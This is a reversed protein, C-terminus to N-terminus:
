LNERSQLESTHEESRYTGGFTVFRGGGAATGSQEPSVDIGVKRPDGDHPWCKIIPLKFLDVADGTHVVDQCAGIRVVKPAFAASRFLTTYPLGASRTA